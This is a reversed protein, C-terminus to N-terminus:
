SLGALDTSVIECFFFSELLILLWGGLGIRRRGSALFWGREALGNLGTAGAYKTGGALLILQQLFFVFNSVGGM